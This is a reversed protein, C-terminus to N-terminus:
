DRLQAIDRGGTVLAEGRVALTGAGDVEAAVIGVSVDQIRRRESKSIGDIVHFRVVSSCIPPSTGAGFLPIPAVAADFTDPADIQTRRWRWLLIDAIYLSVSLALPSLGAGSM